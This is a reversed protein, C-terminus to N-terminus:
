ITFGDPKIPWCSDSFIDDIGSEEWLAPFDRLQQKYNNVEEIKEESLSPNLLWMDSRELLFNRRERNAEWGPFEGIIDVNTNNVLIFKM